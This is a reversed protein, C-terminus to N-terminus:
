IRSRSGTSPMDVLHVTILGHNEELVKAFHIIPCGLPRYRIIEGPKIEERTFPYLTERCSEEGPLPKLVVDAEYGDLVGIIKEEDPIIKTEKLIEPNLWIKRSNKKIYFDVSKLNHEKGLSLEQLNMVDQM